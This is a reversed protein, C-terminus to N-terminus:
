IVIYIPQIKTRSHQTGHLNYKTGTNSHIMLATNQEWLATKYTPNYKTGTNNQIM